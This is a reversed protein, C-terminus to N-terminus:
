EKVVNMERLAELDLPLIDLPIRATKAGKRLKLRRGDSLECSRTVYLFKRKRKM